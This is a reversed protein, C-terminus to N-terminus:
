WFGVAQSNTYYTRYTHMCKNVGYDGDLRNGSLVEEAMKVFIETCAVNKAAGTAKADVPQVSQLKM